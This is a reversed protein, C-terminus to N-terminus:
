KISKYTYIKPFYKNILEILFFLVFLNIIRDLRYPLTHFIEQTIIPTIQHLALILLSNKGLYTLIIKIFKFYMLKISIYLTIFIGLIASILFLIINGFNSSYMDIRGNNFILTIFLVILILMYIFYIKNKFIEIFNIQKSNWGLIFFVLGIFAIHLNLILKIQFLYSNILGLCFIIFFIFYKYKYKELVFAFILETSFLATLFWLPTNLSDNALFLNILNISLFDILETYTFNKYLLTVFMSLLTFTIFPWLLTSAKNLFLKKKDFLYKKDDFLYGSIFFFLPMHFSYIIITLEKPINMHGLVVLIIGIGKLADLWFIRNNM